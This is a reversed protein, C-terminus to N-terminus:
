CLDTLSSKIESGSADYLKCGQVIKYNLRTKAIASIVKEQIEPLDYVFFYNGMGKFACDKILDVSAGNGLGFTHLRQSITCHTKVLNVVKKTDWVAGDTLLMIHSEM